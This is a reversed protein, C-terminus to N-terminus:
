TTGTTDANFARRHPGLPAPLQRQHDQLRALRRAAQAVPGTLPTRNVFWNIAVGFVDTPIVGANVSNYPTTIGQDYLAM